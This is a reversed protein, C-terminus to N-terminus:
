AVLLKQITIELNITKVVERLALLEDVKEPKGLFIYEQGDVSKLNNRFTEDTLIKNIQNYIIPVLELYHLFQYEIVPISYCIANIDFSSLNPKRGTIKKADFKVNKLFRICKKFRGNTLINRENIRKISWFPYEVPLKADRDKDYIQIGKRYDADKKMYEVSKYYVATVVDVNRLPRKVNVCIAKPKSCDVDSYARSLVQESKLRLNGLDSLQNGEYQSFNDSHRQLNKVERETYLYSESLAKKLGVTDVSNSKSTIQLLDIDNESMIHTNTEVSGQFKFDVENGHSKKLHEIVKGAAEKSKVTYEQPVGVMALKIYETINSYPLATGSFTRAELIAKRNVINEPNSRKKLGELLEIYNQQM